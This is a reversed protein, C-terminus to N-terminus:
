SGLPEWQTGAIIAILVLSTAATALMCAAMLGLRRRGVPVALRVAIMALYLLVVIALGALALTAELSTLLGFITASVVTLLGGVVLWITGTSNSLSRQERIRTPDYASIDDRM